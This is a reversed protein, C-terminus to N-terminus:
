ALLGAMVRSRHTLSSFRSRHSATRTGDNPCCVAQPSMQSRIFTPYVDFYPMGGQLTEPRPQADASCKQPWDSAARGGPGLATLVTCSCVCRMVSFVM